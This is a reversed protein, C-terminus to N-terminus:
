MLANRLLRGLIEIRVAPDQIADLKEFLMDIRKRRADSADKMFRALEEGSAIPNLLVLMEQVDCRGVGGGRGDANRM